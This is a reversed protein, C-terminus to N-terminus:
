EKKDIQICGRFFPSNIPFPEENCSFSHDTKVIHQSSLIGQHHNQDSHFFNFNVKQLNDYIQTNSVNLKNTLLEKIYIQLLDRIECLETILSTRERPKFAFEMSTPFNLSYYVSRARETLSFMQPIILTPPYGFLNYTNKYATIIRDIPGASNDIAPAFGTVAGSAIAILQRAVSAYHLSPNINKNKQIISFILDWQFQNRWFDSRDWAKRYLYYYFNQWEKDNTHQFWNKTFFLIKTKWPNGFSKHNAINKFIEWHEIMTRPAPQKLDFTKKLNSHAQKDSIKQMMFITRVGAIMNWSLIPTNTRNRSLVPWTGFVKGPPIVGYLTIIRDGLETFLEATNELIISVPNAGFSYGLDEKITNNLLHSTIPISYDNQKPIHLTGNNLMKTGYPYEMCYFYHKKNPNIQDIIKGLTPNIKIFDTRIEEWSKIFKKQWDM